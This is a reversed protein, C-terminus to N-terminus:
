ILSSDIYCREATPITTPKTAAPDKPPLGVKRRREAYDSLIDYFYNIDIKEKRPWIAKSNEEDDGKAAMDIVSYLNQLPM